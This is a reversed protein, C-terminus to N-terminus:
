GQSREPTDDDPYEGHPSVLGLCLFSVKHTTASQSGEIVKM